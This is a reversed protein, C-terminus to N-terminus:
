KLGKVYALLQLLQEESVQGHFIPMVPQYGQVLKAGPDLISERIYQDDAKVQAGSTLPREAGYVGALEPGLGGAKHCAACGLSDFLGEGAQEMTQGAAAGALWEQYAEPELVVVNGVMGSHLTGCYEACFLHYTGPKTPEFWVTSYRGPVVDMKVRFAPVFFSHIVDESSMTIKVPRGVPVHLQNIERRGNPHQFKWMWQKGVAYMQMADPPPRNMRFFLSAGWAFIIMTIGLPVVTWLLELAMSGHIPLSRQGETRRRFRIAFYILAGAILLSFFASLAILFFYLADVEASLTSAQTPLFQLFKETVTGTGEAV